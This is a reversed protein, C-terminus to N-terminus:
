RQKMDCLTVEMGSDINFGSKLNKFNLNSFSTKFYILDDTNVTEVGGGIITMRKIGYKEAYSNYLGYNFLATKFIIENNTDFEFSKIQNLLLRNGNIFEIKIQYINDIILDKINPENEYDDYLYYGNESFNIEKYLKMKDLYM